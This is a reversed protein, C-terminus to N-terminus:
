EIKGLTYIRPYCKKIFEAIQKLAPEREFSKKINDIILWHENSEVPMLQQVEIIVRQRQEETLQQEFKQHFMAWIASQHVFADVMMEQTTFEQLTLARM